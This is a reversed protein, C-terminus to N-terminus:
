EEDEPLFVRGRRLAFALRWHGGMSCAYVDWSSWEPGGSSQWTSFPTPGGCVQGMTNASQVMWPWEIDTPQLCWMPIPTGEGTMPLGDLPDPGEAGHLERM